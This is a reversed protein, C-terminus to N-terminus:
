LIDNITAFSVAHGYLFLGCGLIFVSPWLHSVSADLKSGKIIRSLEQVTSNVANLSAESILTCSLIYQCLPMSHPEIHLAFLKLIYNKM